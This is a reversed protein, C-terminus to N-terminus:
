MVDCAMAHCVVHCTVHAHTHPESHNHVIGQFHELVAKDKAAKAYSAPKQEIKDHPPQPTRLQMDYRKMGHCAM